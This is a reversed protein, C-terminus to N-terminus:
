KCKFHPSEGDGVSKCINRQSQGQRDLLFYFREVIFLAFVDIFTDVVREVKEIKGTFFLFIEEMGTGSEMVRVARMM